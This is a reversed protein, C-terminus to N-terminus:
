LGSSTMKIMKIVTTLAPFLTTLIVIGLMLVAFPLACYLLVELRYNARNQYIVSASTFGRALNEGSSSVVWIFMSPVKNPPNAIEVFSSHGQSLRSAWLTLDKHIPSKKELDLMLTVADKFNVGTNLLISFSSALRSLSAEKFPSILWNLQNRLNPVCNVAAVCLCAMTIFSFGIWNSHEAPMTAGSLMEVLFTKKIEIVIINLSFTVIVAFILVIMPYVMLGKLRTWTADEKEYYDAIMTLVDPLRNSAVGVQLLNIYLEPLKRTKLADKLPTGKSLDSELAELESKLPSRQMEKCLQKLAGELPIGSNLMSALQRNVFALEDLKM